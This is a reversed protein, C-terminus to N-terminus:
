FNQYWANQSLVGSPHRNKHWAVKRKAEGTTM